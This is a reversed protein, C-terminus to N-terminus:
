SAITLSVGTIPSIPNTVIVRSPSMDKILLGSGSNFSVLDNTKQLPQYTRMGDDIVETNMQYIEDGVNGIDCLVILFINPPLMDKVAEFYQQFAAVQDTTFFKIRLLAACSKLICNFIFNVPNIVNVPNSNSLPPSIQTNVLNLFATNKLSAQYNAVDTPNGIVPFIPFGNNDLSIPELDNNFQVSYNASVLIMSAPLVLPVLSLGTVPVLLGSQHTPDIVYRTTPTSINIGLQTQWWNATNVEDYVEVVEVPVDGINLVSSVIIGPKITYTNPYRYAGTNTVFVNYGNDSLISQITSQQTIVPLGLSSLAIAKLDNITPGNTFMQVVSALVQKGLESHPVDLGFLYGINYKLSESDIAANYCWLTLLRDGSDTGDSNYIITPTVGPITFPNGYFFLRENILQFNQGNVWVYNPNIIQDVIISTLMLSNPLIVSYVNTDEPIPAGFLYPNGMVEAGFLVNEGFLLTNNDMASLYIYIPYWNQHDFISIQKSSYSNILELMNTYAQQAAAAQGSTLGTIVQQESFVRQWFYGLSNFLYRSDTANNGPYIDQNYSLFSM